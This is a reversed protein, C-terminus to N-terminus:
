PQELAQKGGPQGIKKQSAPRQQLGLPLPDTHWQPRHERQDGPHRVQPEESDREFQAHLLIAMMLLPDCTEVRLCRPAASILVKRDQRGTHQELLLNGTLRQKPDDTTRTTLPREILATAKRKEFTHVDPAQHVFPLSRDAELLDRALPLDAM